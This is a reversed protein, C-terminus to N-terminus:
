RSAGILELPRRWCTGCDAMGRWPSRWRAMPPATGGSRCRSADPSSTTSSRSWGHTPQCHRRAARVQRPISLTPDQRDDTSTRGLFAVPVVQATGGSGEDRHSLQRQSRSWTRVTAPVAM